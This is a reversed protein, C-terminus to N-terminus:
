WGPDARVLRLSGDENAEYVARVNDLLRRQYPLATSTSPLDLGLLVISSLSGDSLATDVTQEAGDILGQVFPTSTGGFQDTLFRSCAAAEAPDRGYCVIEKVDSADPSARVGDLVAKGPTAWRTTPAAMNWGLEDRSVTNEIQNGSVDYLMGAGLIMDWGWEHAEDPADLMIVSSERLQGSDALLAIAGAPDQENVYQLRYPLFLSDGATTLGAVWRTCMYAAWKDNSFCGVPQSGGDNGVREVAKLWAPNSGPGPWSRSLIYGTQGYPFSLIVLGILIAGVARPELRLRAVIAILIIVVCWGVLYQLKVPGYGSVTKLISAGGVVVVVYGLAVLSIVWLRRAQADLLNTRIGTVVLVAVVVLLLTGDFTATGGSSAYVGTLSARIQEIGDGLQISLVLGLQVVLVIVAAGAGVCIAFKAGFTAQRWYRIGFAILLLAAFPALPFWMAGMFFLVGVVLPFSWAKVEEFVIAGIAILLGLFVLIASLHGFSGFLVIPVSYAWLAAVVTFAALGLRTRHASQRLLGVTALPLLIMALAYASFTSNHISLEAQQLELLVGLFVQIVPGLTGYTTLGGAAHTQTTVAVWAQNDEVHVLLPLLRGSYDIKIAIFTAVVIGLWCGILDSVSHQSLSRARNACVACLVVCVWVAVSVVSWSIRLDNILTPAVAASVSHLLTVLGFAAFLSLTARAISRAFWTAFGFSGMAIVTYILDWHLAIGILAMLVTASTTAIGAAIRSDVPRSHLGKIAGIFNLFGGPPVKVIM